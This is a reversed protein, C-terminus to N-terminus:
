PQTFGRKSQVQEKQQAGTFKEVEPKSASEKSHYLQQRPFFFTQPIHM